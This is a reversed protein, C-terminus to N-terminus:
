FQFDRIYGRLAKVIAMLKKGDANIENHWTQTKEDFYTFIANLRTFPSITEKVIREGWWGKPWYNKPWYGKPFAGFITSEWITKIDTPLVSFARDYKLWHDTELAKEITESGTQLREKLYVARGFEEIAFEISAVANDLLNNSILVEAADLHRAATKLSIAIGEQIKTKSIKKVKNM